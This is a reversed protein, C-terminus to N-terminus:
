GFGRKGGGDHVCGMVSMYETNLDAHMCLGLDKLCCVRATLGPMKM